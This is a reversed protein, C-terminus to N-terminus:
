CSGAAIKVDDDITSEKGQEQYKKANRANITTGIICRNLEDHKTSNCPPRM